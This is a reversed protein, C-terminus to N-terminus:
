SSYCSWRALTTHLRKPPLFYFAAKKKRVELAGLLKKHGGVRDVHVSWEVLTASGIKRKLYLFDLLEALLRIGPAILPADGRDSPDSAWLPSTVVATVMNRDSGPTKLAWSGVIDESVMDLAVGVPGALPLSTLAQTSLTRIADGQTQDEPILVIINKLTTLVAAYKSAVEPAVNSAAAVEAAAASATISSLRGEYSLTSSVIGPKYLVRLAARAAAAYYVGAVKPNTKINWFFAGVGDMVQYHAHICAHM